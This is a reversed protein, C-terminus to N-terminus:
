LTTTPNPNPNASTLTLILGLTLAFPCVQFVWQVPGGPLANQVYIVGGNARQNSRGGEEQLVLHFDRWVTKLYPYPNRAWIVDLDSQFVNLGLGAQTRWCCVVSFMPLTPTPNPNPTLTLTLDM